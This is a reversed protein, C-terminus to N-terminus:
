GKKKTVSKLVLAGHESPQNPALCRVLHKSTQANIKRLPWSGLHWAREKRLAECFAEGKRSHEEGWKDGPSAEERRKRLLSEEVM